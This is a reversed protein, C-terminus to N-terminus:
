ILIENKGGFTGSMIPMMCDMLIVKYKNLLMADVAKQGNDVITLNNFGINKMIRRIVQQNIYNDEAILIPLTGATVSLEGSFSKRKLIPQKISPEVDDSLNFPIRFSFISGVGEQSEFQIKGNMLEVLKKSINLGLGSGGFKRRVSSDAQYFPQFLSSQVHAPIGIGHDQVMFYLSCKEKTM